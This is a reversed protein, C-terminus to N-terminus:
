IAYCHVETCPASISIELATLDLPLTVAHRLYLVGSAPVTHTKSMGAISSTVTSGAAARVTATLERTSGNFGQRYQPFEFKELVPATYTDTPMLDNRVNSSRDAYAMGSLTLVLLRGAAREAAIYRMAETFTTLSINGTTDINQPHCIFSIGVKWNVARNVLEKIRTLSYPDIGYPTEGDRPIGDLLRHYSNEYYGAALAHNRMIIQGAFTDWQEPLLSRGHGDFKATAGGPPAFCDIPIRPMAQRLFTRAGVFNEIIAAEGSANKHDMGHNWVEGGCELSYAEMLPFEAPDIIEDHISKATTVRTFPLDLEKLIPLVKERFQVPADDFRLAIVGRGATGITGGKRASLGQRLHERYALSPTLDTAKGGVQVWDGWVDMIKARQWMEGGVSTFTLLGGRAGIPRVSITGPLSGPVGLATAITTNTIIYEGYGLAELRDTTTLTTSQKEKITTAWAGWKNEIKTKQWLGGRLSTFTILGGAWGVPYVWIIGPYPDPLGLAAAITDNTVLYSGPPLTTLDTASTITYDTRLWGKRAMELAKVANKRIADDGNRIYSTGEPMQFGYATAEQEEPTLVM